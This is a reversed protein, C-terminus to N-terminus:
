DDARATLRREQKGLGSRSQLRIAFLISVVVGARVTDDVDVIEPAFRHERCRGRGKRRARNHHTFFERPYTILLRPQHSGHDFARTAEVGFPAIPFIQDHIASDRFNALPLLLPSAQITM